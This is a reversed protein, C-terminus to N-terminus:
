FNNLLDNLDENSLVAQLAQTPKQKKKSAVAKTENTPTYAPTQWGIGLGLPICRHCAPKHKDNVFYGTIKQSIDEPSHDLAYNYGSYTKTVIQSHVWRNGCAACTYNFIQLLHEV